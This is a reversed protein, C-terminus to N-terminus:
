QLARVGIVGYPMPADQIEIGISDTSTNLRTQQTVPNYTIYVGTTSSLNVTAFEKNVRLAIFHAFGNPPNSNSETIVMVFGQFPIVQKLTEGPFSVSRNLVASPTTSSSPYVYIEIYSQYPVVLFHSSEDRFLVQPVYSLQEEPDDKTYIITSATIQAQSNLTIDVIHKLGSAVSLFLLLRTVNQNARIDIPLIYAHTVDSLTVLEVAASAQNGVNDFIFGKITGDTTQILTFGYILNFINIWKITYIPTAIKLWRNAKSSDPSEMTGQTNVFINNKYSIKFGETYYIHPDYALPQSNEPLVVRWRDSEEFPTKSAVSKHVNVFTYGEYTVFEGPDYVQNQWPAPNFQAVAWGNSPPDGKGVGNNMTGVYKIGNYTIIDGKYYQVDANWAPYTCFPIILRWQSWNSYPDKNQGTNVESLAVFIQGAYNVYSGAPYEKSSDYQNPSSLMDQVLLRTWALNAFSGSQAKLTSLAIETYYAYAGEYIILRWHWAGANLYWGQELKYNGNDAFELSHSGGTTPSYNLQKGSGAAGVTGTNDVSITGLFGAQGDDITNNANKQLANLNTLIVAPINVNQIAQSTLDNLQRYQSPANVIAVYEIQHQAQATVRINVGYQLVASANNLAAHDPFIADNLDVPVTSTVTINEANSTYNKVVPSLPTNTYPYDNTEMTNKLSLFAANRANNYNEIAQNQVMSVKLMYLIVGSLISVVAVIILAILLVSGQERHGTKNM